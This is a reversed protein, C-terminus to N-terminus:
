TVDIWCCLCCRWKPNPCVLGYVQKKNSTYVRAELSGIYLNTQGLRWKARALVLPRNLSHHLLASTPWSSESLVLINLCCNTHRVLHFLVFKLFIGWTPTRMLGLKKHSPNLNGLFSSRWLVWRAFLTTMNTATDNKWGHKSNKVLSTKGMTDVGVSSPGMKYGIM